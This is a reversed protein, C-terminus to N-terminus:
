MRPPRSRRREIGANTPLEHPNKTAHTEGLRASAQRGDGCCTKARCRGLGPCESSAAKPYDTAWATREDHCDNDGSCAADCGDLM